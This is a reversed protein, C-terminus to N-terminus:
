RRGLEIELEREDGVVGAQGPKGAGNRRGAGRLVPVIEGDLGQGGAEAGLGAHASRDRAIQAVGAGAVDRQVGDALEDRGRHGHGAGLPGEAGAQGAELGGVAPLVDGGGAEGM